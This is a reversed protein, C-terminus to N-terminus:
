RSDFSQLQQGDKSEEYLVPAKKSEETKLFTSVPSGSEIHLVLNSAPSEYIDKTNASSNKGSNKSTEYEHVIM